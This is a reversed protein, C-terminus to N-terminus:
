RAVGATPPTAMVLSNGTRSHGWMTGATHYEVQWTDTDVVRGGTGYEIEFGSPTVMYFSIMMDNTHRGLNTAIPVNKQQCLTYTRGVDDIDKAQLMIHWMRKPRPGQALALTHHRPNCHFFATDRIYDSLQMGLADRYFAVARPIDQVFINTHGLGQGETVFGGHPRSSQFPRDYDMLPGWFVENIFGDPDKFRVLGRVRRAAAEEKSCVEVEQGWARVQEAVAELAAENLVRFGQYAFDDEGSPHVAVRYRNTDMRLLLTGDPLRESIEMGLIETAFAEWAAIDSVGLGVYGLELVREM